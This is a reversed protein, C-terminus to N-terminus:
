SLFRKGDVSPGWSLPCLSSPGVCVCVTSYNVLTTVSSLQAEEHGGQAQGGCAIEGRVVCVSVEPGSNQIQAESFTDLALPPHRSSQM